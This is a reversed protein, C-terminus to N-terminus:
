PSIGEADWGVSVIDPNMIHGSKTSHLGCGIQTFTHGYGFAHGLEHAITLRKLEAPDKNYDPTKSAETEDRLSFVGTYVVAAWPINDGVPRITEAMHTRDLTADALSFTIFGEYCPVMRTNGHENLGSCNAVCPKHTVKSVSYGLEQWWNLVHTVDDPEVWDPTSQCIILSPEDKWQAEQPTQPKAVLHLYLLSGVVLLTLAGGFWPMVKSAIKAASPM